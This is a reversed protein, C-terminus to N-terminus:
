GIAGRGARVGGRGRPVRVPEAECSDCGERLHEALARQDGADLRDLAALPLLDALAQHDM